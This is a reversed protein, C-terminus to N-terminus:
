ETPLGAAKLDEFGGQTMAIARTYGLGRLKQVALQSRSGSRCYTVIPANKDAPVGPSTATLTQWPVLRAGKIHGEQWEEESRVDLLVAGDKVLQAVAAADVAKPEAPADPSMLAGLALLATAAYRHGM